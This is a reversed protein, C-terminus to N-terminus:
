SNGNESEEYSQRPCISKLACFGCSKSNMPKPEFTEDNELNFILKDEFVKYNELTEELDDIMMFKNYQTHKKIDAIFDKDNGFFMSNVRNSLDIYGIILNDDHSIKELEFLRQLYFWLQVQEFNSISTFTSFVFNSRKFDIIIKQNSTKSELLCDISGSYRIDNLTINFPFEFSPSFGLDIVLQSLTNIVDWTFARVEVLYEECVKESINKNSTYSNLVETIIKEFEDEDVDVRTKFYEEIVKHEIQGLELVNLENNFDIQPSLKNIYQFYYKRPCELYKQLRSASIKELQQKEIELQIYEKKYNTKINLEAPKLDVGSLVKSWNTDHELIGEEMFIEVNNESIFEELRCKLINMEFEARRIPGISALYKEVNESFNAGVGKISGHGSHIGFIIHLGKYDDINKISKVQASQKASTLTTLNIRPLDLVSSEFLIKLDFEGINGNESSLEEWESLTSLIVFIVKLERYKESVIYSQILSNLIERIGDSSTEGDLKIEQELTDFINKHEFSFLDVPLKMVLNEVPLEQINERTLTKTGLVISYKETDISNLAKSFYGKPFRSLAVEKSIIEDSSIDETETNHGDFWRIWDLMQTKEYSDKYMPIYVNDRLAFSKLMDVQSATMFDFGYFVLHKDFNYDPPLDGERLREALLFYSKHEDVIGMEDLFRHLWLVGEGLEPDYHELVTELVQTSMSFSRFETLLNFARKFSLYDAGKGIKKWIAGLLLVLEAKGKYNEIVDDDSLFNLENKIFKSITLSEVTKGLSDFNKRVLDATQPNPSVVIIDDEVCNSMYDFFDQSKKTLLVKLM